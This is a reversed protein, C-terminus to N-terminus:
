KIRVADLVQGVKKAVAQTSLHEALDKYAQEAIEVRLEPDALLRRCADVWDPLTKVLFGNEGNRFFRAHDVEDSAVVPVGAVIYALVKGFSKGQSFRYSTCIPQLGIAAGALSRVFHRYRMRPCVRHTIGARTLPELWEAVRDREPSYVMVEFRLGIEALRLWLSLMLEAEHPYDFPNSQAWVLSPVASTEKPREPRGVYTGTWIVTVNPNHVRFQEALFESGAIVAASGRLCEIVPESNNLIDADDADFVIVSGSYLSPRNLPHRSQQLFLVAGPESRVISQRVTLDLWPPVIITRWGQRRLERAIAVGRLDGASGTYLQDPFFVARRSSRRQFLRQSTVYLRGAIQSERLRGLRARLKM